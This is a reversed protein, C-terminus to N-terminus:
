LYQTEEECWNKEIKKSEWSYVHFANWSLFKCKEKQHARTLETNDSNGIM